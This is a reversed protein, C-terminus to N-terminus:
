IKPNQTTICYFFFLVYPTDTWLLLLTQMIM